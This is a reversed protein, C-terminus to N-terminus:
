QGSGFLFRRVGKLLGPSQTQQIATLIEKKFHDFDDVSVFKVPDVDDQRALAQNKSKSIMEQCYGRLTTRFFEELTKDERSAAKAIIRRTEIDVRVSWPDAKDTREPRGKKKGTNDNSTETIGSEM